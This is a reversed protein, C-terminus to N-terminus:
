YKDLDGLSFGEAIVTHKKDTLILHPLSVVGWASKMKDIDGAIFGVAFPIKNEQIWQNWVKEEAKGTHVAVVMVGKERLQGAQGVLQTLCNRSPRQGMDWFCVLLRKGEADATLDIGLDKLPPLPKGTLLAGRRPPYPRPSRRDAVTIKVDTAGGEAEASGRLPSSGPAGASLHITGPSVGKITFRGRADTQVTRLDPQGDGFASVEMGAVPQDNADVVVGSVSLDSAVLKIRGIDHRKENPDLTAIPASQKGYGDATVEVTYQREPPVAKVEFVGDPGATALEDWSLRMMARDVKLLVRVNAGPLPQGAENLVTGTVIVGPQLKLDLPGTSEDIDLAAALNRSPDRAVFIVATVARGPLSTDWPIEFKGSADSLAGGTGSSLTRIWTAQVKIGALPHGAEDRVIGAVKPKATVIYEVRQTQGEAVRVPDTTEPPAYGPRYIQSLSYAGPLVRIRALGNADTSAGFGQEQGVRRFYVGVKEVPKGATDKILTDLFAGKTIEMRVDRKTQGATLPIRVDEAVWEPKQGRATWLTVICTGDSLSSLRFTGDPATVARESPVPAGRGRRDSHAAVEIGGVPKGGAKEVVVGEIRAEAPLTFRIGTQGPAFQCQERAHSTIDVTGVPGRGLAEVLFEFTARAPMEPFVFHGNRDTTTRLFGTSRLDHRNEGKGIKAMAIHVVAEAIPRGVEDIVDGALEKPEGPLRLDLRQDERMPWDTWILALGAKRAIVHGFRFDKATQAVAFSFAGEAGTTKRDLVQIIPLVGIEGATEQYLTVEAGAVPTGQPDLVRGSLTISNAQAGAPALRGAEQRGSLSAPEGPSTTTSRPEAPRAQAFALGFVACVVLVTVGVAWKAGTRPNGCADNLIRQVRFAVGRRSGVVAPVFAPRNQLRFGLLSEAYDEVPQGSAVVWDDCAQETLAVLHRKSLWLLPNWPLACVVSEALLGTVHDGRKWHALEHAIVGL